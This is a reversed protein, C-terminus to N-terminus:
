EQCIRFLVEERELAQSVYGSFDLRVEPTEPALMSALRQLARRLGYTAVEEISGATPARSTRDQTELPRLERLLARMEAFALRSLEELRHARREGEKPDKRWASALSQSMLSISSLVQTVSDHLDRALRQRERMVA